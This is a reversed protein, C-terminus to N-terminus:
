LHPLAFSELALNLLGRAQEETCGGNAKAKQAQNIAQNLAYILEDENLYRLQKHFIRQKIIKIQLRVTLQKAGIVM